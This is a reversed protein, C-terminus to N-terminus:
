LPADPSEFHSRVLASQDGSQAQCIGLECVIRAVILNFGLKVFDNGGEDLPPKLFLRERSSLKDRRRAITHSHLVPSGQDGFVQGAVAVGGHAQEHAFNDHKPAVREALADSAGGDARHRGRAGARRRERLYGRTKRSM